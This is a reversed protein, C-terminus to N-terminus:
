DRSAATTNKASPFFSGLLARFKNVRKRHRIRRLVAEKTLTGPADNPDRKLHLQSSVIINLEDEDDDNKDEENSPPNTSIIRSM